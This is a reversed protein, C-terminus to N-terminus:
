LGDSPHWSFFREGAEVEVNLGHVCWWKCWEWLKRNLHVRALGFCGILALSHRGM